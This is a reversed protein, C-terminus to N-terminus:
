SKTGPSFLRASIRRLPKRELLQQAVPMGMLVLALLFLPWNFSSPLVNYMAEFGRNAAALADTMFVYLALLIGPVLWFTQKLDNRWAQLGTGGFQSALTGWLIMLSAILVPALVPGWWPLPLLFLIDWDLLSVPWGTLVKLFVYYCIDWVGFAVLTYGFRSRWTKGAIWGVAALMVLTAAERIPEAIMVPAIPPLISPQLAEFHGSPIRLYVVVASEVWAMAMAYIVVAIWQAWQAQSPAGAGPAPRPHSASALATREIQNHLMLQVSKAAGM